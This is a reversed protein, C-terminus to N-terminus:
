SLKVEVPQEYAPLQLATLHKCFRRTRWAPCSCAFHRKTKHQAVVYVRDSSSSHIEFRNTWQANDPLKAGDRPVYVTLTKNGTSM